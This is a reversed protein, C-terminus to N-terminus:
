VFTCVVARACLVCCRAGDTVGGADCPGSWGCCRIEFIKFVGSLLVVSHILSMIIVCSERERGKAVM